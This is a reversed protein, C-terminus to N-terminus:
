KEVYSTTKILVKLEGNFLKALVCDNGDQPLTPENNKGWCIEVIPCRECYVREDNNSM